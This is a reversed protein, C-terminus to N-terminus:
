TLRLSKRRRHRVLVRRATVGVWRCQLNMATVGQAEGAMVVVVVAITAGKSCIAIEGHDRMTTAGLMGDQCVGIAIEEIETGDEIMVVTDVPTVIKGNVRETIEAPLTPTSKLSAAPRDIEGIIHLDRADAIPDETTEIEPTEREATM